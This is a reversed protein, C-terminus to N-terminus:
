WDKGLLSFNVTFNHKRNEVVFGVKIYKAIRM